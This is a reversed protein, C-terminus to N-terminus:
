GLSKKWVKPLICGLPKLRQLLFPFTGLEIGVLREAPSLSGVKNRPDQHGEPRFHLVCHNVDPPHPQGEIIAWLQGHPLWIATKLIKKAWNLGLVKM